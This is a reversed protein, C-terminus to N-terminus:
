LVKHKIKYSCLSLNYLAELLKRTINKRESMFLMEEFINILNFLSSKFISFIYRYSFNWQIRSYLFIMSFDFSKERLYLRRKLVVNLGQIFVDFNILM